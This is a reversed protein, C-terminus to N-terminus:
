PYLYYAKLISQIENLLLFARKTIHLLVDLVM